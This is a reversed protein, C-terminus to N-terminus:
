KVRKSDGCDGVKWSNDGDNWKHPPAHVGLRLIRVFDLFAAKVEDSFRSRHGRGVKLGNLEPPLERPNSGFYSFTESILVYRGGLDHAKNDSSESQGDSHTSWLQRHGSGQPRYINDGCKAFVGADYRPRKAIFRRDSWYEAYTKPTEDVRMLYVIRNGSKKSTLGVIWDGKGATRRIAPKCCALTCYGHFPNPSFGTDHKVIYSYITM